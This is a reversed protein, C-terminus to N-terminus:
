KILLRGFSRNRLHQINIKLIEEVKALLERNFVVKSLNPLVHNPDSVYKRLLSVHFVNHIKSDIPLKLEYAMPGIINVIEFSGCFRSSLKKLKSLKM